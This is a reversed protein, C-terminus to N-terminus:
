PRRGNATGPNCWVPNPLMNVPIGGGRAGPAGAYRSTYWESLRISETSGSILGVTAGKGHRASIGEDPFSSCDNFFFPTKEDTEWQLIANPKFATIKYSQPAFTGFGNVAGNWVYSTIYINRSYYLTNVVDSPCMLIKESKIYQYLQGSGNPGKFYSLQNSRITSITAPSAGGLPTLNPGHAWSPNVTGWGCGPLLETNDGTYLNVALMLQKNNNLDVTRHARNKAQSLAPLLMAALIAIIAIVVLLEILTFGRTGGPQRRSATRGTSLSEHLKTKM